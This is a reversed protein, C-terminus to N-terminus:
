KQPKYSEHVESTNFKITRAQQTVYFLGTAPNSSLQSIQILFFCTQFQIQVLAGLNLSISNHNNM